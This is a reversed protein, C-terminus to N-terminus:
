ISENLECIIYDESEIKWFDEGIFKLSSGVSKKFLITDGVKYNEVKKGVFEVTSVIEQNESGLSFSNKPLKVVVEKKKFIPNYKIM